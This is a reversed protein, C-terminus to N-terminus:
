ARGEILRAVEDAPILVKGIGPVRRVTGARVRLRLTEYSVGIEAAAERLTFPRRTRQPAEAMRAAVRAAIADVQDDTLHLVLDM